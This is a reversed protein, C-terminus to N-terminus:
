NPPYRGAMMAPNPSGAQLEDSVVELLRSHAANHLLRLTASHKRPDELEGLRAPLRLVV